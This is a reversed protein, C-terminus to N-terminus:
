GARQVSQTEHRFYFDISRKCAACRLRVNTLIEGDYTFREQVPAAEPQYLADGCACTSNQLHSTIEEPTRVAIASAVTAGQRVKMLEKWPNQTASRTRRKYVVVVIAVTALGGLVMFLAGTSAPKRTGVGSRVVSAEGQALEIGVANRMQEIIEIHRGVKDASIHDALSKLSYELRIKRGASSQRYSLLLADDSISDSDDPASALGPLEIEITQNISAPYEIEFPTSRKAVSPKSLASLIQDPYFYHNPETWLTDIEYRETITIANSNQDDKVENKGLLRISPTKRAYYNLNGKAFEELSQSALQARVLDANSGRYNSTVVFSVPQGYDSIKYVQNVSVSGSDRAPDPITELSQSGERLVLARAYPPDYYVALGGRQFSITGDFWYTKGALKAQVIVHNFAFPTPYWNDLAKGASNHVLAPAAEIGLSNLITTLLQAKDKCDGFRRALVKEPSTPQHSYRGLEIGLYRVDDQVFRLAALLRQEPTQFETKWKEIKEALRRDTVAPIKYLPLAWQVVERWDKFDSAEVVPTTQAWAPTSDEYEFAPVDHIQWVYETENGITKVEPKLDTNRNRLNVPLPSSWLLRVSLKQVDRDDALSFREAFHNAFVPNDGSVSFAYDVVDGVRLDNLFVVSSFTGNYVRENLEQEEQITKVEGPNLANIVAGARHLRIFHIALQQYSPEFYFKLHSLDDLGAQTEIRFAYHYFREVSSATVRVQYDDLVLSSSGTSGAVYHSVTDVNETRTWSPPAKVVFKPNSYAAVAFLQLIGLVAALQAVRAASPPLNLRM